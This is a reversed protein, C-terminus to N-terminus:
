HISFSDDMTVSTNITWHGFEGILAGVWEGNNLVTVTGSSYSRLISGKTFYGFLGGTGNFDTTSGSTWNNTVSGTAYCDEATVPNGVNAFGALGGVGYSSGTVAGTAVSRAITLTSLTSGILGGVSSGGSTATATVSATSKSEIVDLETLGVLGGVTRLAEVSGSTKVRTIIGSGQASGTLIGAVSDIAKVDATIDINSFNVNNSYGALGGSFAKSLVDTTDSSGTIFINSIVVTSSGGYIHGALIGIKSSVSTDGLVKANIISVKDIVSQDSIQGIFGFVASTSNLTLNEVNLNKITANSVKGFIGSTDATFSLNIQSLTHDAGDFVGSFTTANKSGIPKWSSVSSFDLDAELRYSQSCSLSVSDNCNESIDIFQTLNCILYPKENTGEGIDDFKTSSGNLECSSRLIFTFTKPSKPSTDALGQGGASVYFNFDDSTVSADTNEYTISGQTIDEQTFTDGEYMKIGLKKLEGSKPISTLSYVIDAESYGEVTYRLQDNTIQGQSGFAVQASQFTEVYKLPTKTSTESATASESSATRNVTTTNLGAKCSFFTIAILAFCSKM